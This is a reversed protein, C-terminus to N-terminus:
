DKQTWCVEVDVITASGTAGSATRSFWRTASGAASKLRLTVLEFKLKVQPVLRFKRGSSRNLLGHCAGMVLGEQM